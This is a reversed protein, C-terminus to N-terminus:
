RGGAGGGNGPAHLLAVAPVPALVVVVVVVAQRKSSLERFVVDVFLAFQEQDLEPEMGRHRMAAMLRQACDALAMARGANRAAEQRWARFCENRLGSWNGHQSTDVKGSTM